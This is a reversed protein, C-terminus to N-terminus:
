VPAVMIATRGGAPLTRSSAKSARASRAQDESEGCRRCEAKASADEGVDDCGDVEALLVVVVYLANSRASSGASVCRLSVRQGESGGPAPQAGDRVSQSGGPSGRDAQELQIASYTLVSLLETMTRM